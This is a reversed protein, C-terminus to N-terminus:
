LRPLAHRTGRAATSSRLGAAGGPSSGTRSSAQRRTPRERPLAVPAGWLPFADCPQNKVWDPGLFKARSVQVHMPRDLVAIAFTPFLGPASPSRRYCAAIDIIEELLSSDM